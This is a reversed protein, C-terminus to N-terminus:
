DLIRFFWLKVAKNLLNGSDSEAKQPNQKKQKDGAESPGTDCQRKGM